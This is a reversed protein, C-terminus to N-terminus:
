PLQTHLEGQLQFRTLSSVELVVVVQIKFAAQDELVVVVQL